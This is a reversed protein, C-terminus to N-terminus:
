QHFHMRIPISDPKKDKHLTLQFRIRNTRCTIGERTFTAFRVSINTGFVELDKAIDNLDTTGPLWDIVGTVENSDPNYVDGSFGSVNLTQLQCFVNRAEPHNFIVEWVWNDQTTGLCDIQDEFNEEKIADFITAHTYPM